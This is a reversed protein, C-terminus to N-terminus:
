PDGEVAGHAMREGREWWNHLASSKERATTLYSNHAPLICKFIPVSLFFTNWSYWWMAHDDVMTGHTWPVNRQTESTESNRKACVSTWSFDNGMVLLKSPTRDAALPVVQTQYDAREGCELLAGAEGVSYDVYKGM